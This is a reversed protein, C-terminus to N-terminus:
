ISQGPSALQGAIVHDFISDSATLLDLKCAFWTCPHWTGWNKVIQPFVKPAPIRGGEWRVPTHLFWTIGVWFYLYISKCNRKLRRSSFTKKTFGASVQLAHVFWFRWGREGTLSVSFIIASASKLWKILSWTIPLTIILLSENIRGNSNGRAFIPLEWKVSAGRGRGSLRRALAAALERRGENSSPTPYGAPRYRSIRHHTSHFAGSNRKTPRHSCDWNKDCTPLTRFLAEITVEVYGTM